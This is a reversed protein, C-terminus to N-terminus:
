GQNLPDKACVCSCVCVHGNGPTGAAGGSTGGPAGGRAARLEGLTLKRMNFASKSENTKM